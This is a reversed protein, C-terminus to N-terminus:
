ALFLGFNEEAKKDSVFFPGHSFTLSPLSSALVIQLKSQAEKDRNLASEM